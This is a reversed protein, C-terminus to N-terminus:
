ITANSSETLYLIQTSRGGSTTRLTSIHYADFYASLFFGKSKIISACFATCFPSPSAAVGWLFLVFLCLSNLRQQRNPFNIHCHSELTVPQIIDILELKEDYPLTYQNRSRSSCFRYRRCNTYLVVTHLSYRTHFQSVDACKVPLVKWGEGDSGTTGMCSLRLSM